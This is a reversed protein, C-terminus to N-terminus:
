RDANSGWRGKFGTQWDALREGREKAEITERDRYRPPVTSNVAPSFDPCAASPLNLDWSRSLNGPVWGCGQVERERGKGERLTEARAAPKPSSPLKVRSQKARKREGPELGQSWVRASGQALAGPPVRWPGPHKNIIHWINGSRVTDRTSLVTGVTSQSCLYLTGKDTRM